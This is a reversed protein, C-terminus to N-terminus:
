EKTSDKPSDLDRSIITTGILVVVVTVLDAATSRGMVVRVVLLVPFTVVFAVAIRLVQRM